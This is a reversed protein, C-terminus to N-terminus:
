SLIPFKRLYRGQTTQWFALFGRGFGEKTAGLHAEKHPNGGKGNAQNIPQKGM